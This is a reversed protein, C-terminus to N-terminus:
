QNLQGAAPALALLSDLYHRGGPTAGLSDMLHQWANSASPPFLARDLARQYHIGQPGAEHHPLVVQVGPVVHLSPVMPRLM